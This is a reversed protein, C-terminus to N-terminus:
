GIILIIYNPKFHLSARLRGLLGQGPNFTLVSEVQYRIKCAFYFVVTNFSVM